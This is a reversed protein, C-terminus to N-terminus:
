EKGQHCICYLHAQAKRDVPVTEMASLAPNTEGEGFHTETFCLVM